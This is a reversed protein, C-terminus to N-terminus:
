RVSDPGSLGPKTDTLSPLLKKLWASNKLKLQPERGQDRESEILKSRRLVRLVRQRDRVDYGFVPRPTQEDYERMHRLMEHEPMLSGTKEGLVQGLTKLFNAAQRAVPHSDIVVLEYGDVGAPAADIVGIRRAMEILDKAANGGKREGDHAVPTSRLDQFLDDRPVGASHRDYARRNLECVVRWLPELLGDTPWDIRAEFKEDPREHLWGLGKLSTVIRDLRTGDDDGFRGTGLDGISVLRNFNGARRLVWDADAVTSAVDDSGFHLFTRRAQVARNGTPARGPVAVRRSETRTFQKIVGEMEVEDDARSLLGWQSMLQINKTQDGGLVGGSMCLRLLGLILTSSREGTARPIPRFKIVDTIPLLLVNQQAAISKYEPTLKDISAVVLIVHAGEGVIREILPIFDQDGTALLFLRPCGASSHVHDMALVALMLDAQEKATRTKHLKGLLTGQIATEVPASFNEGVFHARALRVDGHKECQDLAVRMLDTVVDAGFALRQNKLQISLNLWDVLLVAEDTLAM